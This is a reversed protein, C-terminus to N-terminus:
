RLAEVGGAAPDGLRNRRPALAHRRTKGLRVIAQMFDDGHVAARQGIADRLGALTEAIQDLRAGGRGAIREVLRAAADDGRELVAM